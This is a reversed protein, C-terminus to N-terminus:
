CSFYASERNKNNQKIINFKRNFHFYYSSIIQKILNFKELIPPILM